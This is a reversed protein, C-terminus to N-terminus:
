EDLLGWGRVFRETERGKARLVSTFTAARLRALSGLAQRRQSGGPREQGLWRAVENLSVMVRGGSARDRWYRDCLKPFVVLDGPGLTGDLHTILFPQRNLPVPRWALASQHPIGARSGFAPARAVNRELHLVTADRGAM